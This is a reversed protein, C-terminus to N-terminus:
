KLAEYLEAHRMLYRRARYFRSMVTGIPVGLEKATEQQLLEEFLTLRATDRFPIPLNEVATRAVRVGEHRLAYTEPTDTIPSVNVSLGEREFRAGESRQHRYWNVFTTYAIRYLWGSLHTFPKYQHHYRLVRFFTESVLDDADARSRTKSLFYARLKPQYERFVEGLSQGDLIISEGTSEGSFARVREVLPEPFASAAPPM